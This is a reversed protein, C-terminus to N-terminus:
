SSLISTVLWEPGANWTKIDSLSSLTTPCESKHSQGKQFSLVISASLWSLRASCLAVIAPSVKGVTSNEMTTPSIAANGVSPYTIYLTKMRRHLQESRASGVYLLMRLKRENVRLTSSMASSARHSIGSKLKLALGGFAVVHRRACCSARFCSELIASLIGFNPHRPTFPM